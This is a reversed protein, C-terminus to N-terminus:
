ENQAVSLKSIEELRKLADEVALLQSAFMKDRIDINQSVSEIVRSQNDIRREFEAARERTQAENDDKWSAYEYELEALRDTAKKIETPLMAKSQLLELKKDTLREVISYRSQSESM